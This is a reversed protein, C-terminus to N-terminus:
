LWGCAMTEGRGWLYKGTNLDILSGNIFAFHGDPSTQATASGVDEHPKRSRLWGDPNIFEQSRVDYLQNTEHYYDGRDNDTTVLWFRGGLYSAQGCSEEDANCRSKDIKITPPKPAKPPAAPKYAKARGYALKVLEPDDLKAKKAREFAAAAEEALKWKKPDDGEQSQYCYPERDGHCLVYPEVKAEPGMVLQVATDTNLGDASQLVQAQGSYNIVIAEFPGSAPHKVVDHTKGTETDYAHVGGTGHYWVLRSAKDAECWAIAGVKGLKKRGVEAKAEGARPPTVAWLLGNAVAFGRAAEDGDDKSGDDAPVPQDLKAKPEPEAETAAVPEDGKSAAPEAPKNKKCAVVLAALSLATILKWM